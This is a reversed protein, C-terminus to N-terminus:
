ICDVWYQEWRNNMWEIKIKTGTYITVTESPNFYNVTVLTGTETGDPNFLTCEGTDEPVITETARATYRLSKNVRGPMSPTLAKNPKRTKDRLVAKLKRHSQPTVYLQPM